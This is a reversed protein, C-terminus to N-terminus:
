RRSRGELDLRPLSRSVRTELARAGVRHFSAVCSRASGVFGGCKRVLSICAIPSFGAPSLPYWWRTGSTAENMSPFRGLELQEGAEVAEFGDRGLRAADAVVEDADHGAAVSNQAVLDDCESRVVIMQSDARRHISVRDVVARVVICRSDVVTSSIARARAFPGAGFRVIM